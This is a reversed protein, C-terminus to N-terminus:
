KNTWFRDDSRLIVGQDGASNGGVAYIKTPVYQGPTIVAKLDLTTGSNQTAWNAASSCPSTGCYYIIGGSGVAWVHSADRATIGYLPHDLDDLVTSWSTGNYFLISGKPSNTPDARVAWSNTTDFYFIDKIYDTSSSSNWQLTFTSTNYPHLYIRAGPGTGILDNASRSITQLDQDLYEKEDIWDIGTGKKLITTDQGVAWYKSSLSDCYVGYLNKDTPPTHNCGENDCVTGKEGVMWFDNEGIGSISMLDNQTYSNQSSWSSGTSRLITGEEGVAWIDSASSAWVGSLNKTTGSTQASWSSGNYKLITGNKGVTWINSSNLGFIGLLDQTTGSSQVSWTTGNYFIITGDSGVAWLSSTSSGYISNLNAQTNSTQGSWVSGDYKIVTGNTGVAWANSSDIITLGNLDDPTGSGVGSWSSGDFHGLGGSVGAVWLNSDSLGDIARLNQELL